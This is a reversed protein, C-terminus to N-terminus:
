RSRSGSFPSRKPRCSGVEAYSLVFSCNGRDNAIDCLAETPIHAPECRTRTGRPRDTGSVSRKYLDPAVTTPQLAARIIGQMGEHQTAGDDLGSRDFRVTFGEAPQVSVGAGARRLSAAVREPDLPGTRNRHCHIQVLHLRAQASFGYGAEGRIM